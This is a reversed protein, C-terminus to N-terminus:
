TCAVLSALQLDYPNPGSEVGGLPIPEDALWEHRGNSMSVGLGSALRATIQSM